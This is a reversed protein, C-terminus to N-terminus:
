INSTLTNYPQHTEYTFMNDKFFVELIPYSWLGYFQDFQQTKDVNIALALHIFQM